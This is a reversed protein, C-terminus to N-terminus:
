KCEYASRGSTAMQLRCTVKQSFAQVGSDLPLVNYESPLVLIRAIGLARSTKVVGNNDKYQIMALAEVEGELSKSWKDAQLIDKFPISIVAETSSYTKQIDKYFLVIQNGVLNGGNPLIINWSSTISSGNIFRCVDFGGNPLALCNSIADKGPKIFQLLTKDGAEVAPMSSDEKFDCACAALLLLPILRRM